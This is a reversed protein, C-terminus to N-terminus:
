CYITIYIDKGANKTDVTFTNDVHTKGETLASGKVNVKKADGVEKDGVKIKFPSNTIHKGMKKVSVTHEGVERPTFSIGLFDIIIILCILSTEM